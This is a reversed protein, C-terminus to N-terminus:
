NSWQIAHLLEALRYGAKSLQKMIRESHQTAYDRPLRAGIDKIDKGGQGLTFSLFHIGEYAANAEPITATVWQAPWSRVPGSTQWGGPPVMTRLKTALASYNNVGSAQRVLESDWYSHLEKKSPGFLIQNGGRDHDRGVAESPRKLLVLKDGGEVRYYGCAVHLPQHLDGVHHILLRLAQKKTFEKRRGELVDICWRVTQVIDNTRAFPSGNYNTTALPLNVFHWQDNDKFRTNFQRAEFDNVLPGRGRAAERIEDPWLSARSMSEPGLIAAIKQKVDPRLFAEAMLGIAQHGQASWAFVTHWGGSAILFAAICARVSKGPGVM